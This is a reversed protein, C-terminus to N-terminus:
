TPTQYNQEKVNTALTMDSKQGINDGKLCEVNESVHKPQPEPYVPQPEPITSQEFNWGEGKSNHCFVLWHFLKATPSFYRIRAKLSFYSDLIEMTLPFPM